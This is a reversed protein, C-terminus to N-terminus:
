PKILYKGAFIINIIGIICVIFAINAYSSLSSLRILGYSLYHEPPLINTSSIIQFVSGHGAMNPLWDLIDRFGLLAYFCIIVGVVAIIVRATNKTNKYIYFGLIVLLVAWCIYLLVQLRIMISQVFRDLDIISYERASRGLRGIMDRVTYVALPDPSHPQIYLSSIRLNDNFIMWAMNENGQRVIGTIIYPVDGRRVVMGVLNEGVGFLRWALIENIVMTQENVQDFGGEVFLLSHIDFYSSNTYIVSTSIGAMSSYLRTHGHSVPTISYFPFQVELIDIGSSDFHLRAEGLSPAVYISNDAFYRNARTYLIFIMVLTCIIIIFNIIIFTKSM